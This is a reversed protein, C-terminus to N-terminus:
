IHSLITYVIAIAAMIAGMVGAIILGHAWSEINQWWAEVPNFPQVGTKGAAGAKEKTVTEMRDPVKTDM